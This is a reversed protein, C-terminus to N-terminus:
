QPYMSQFSCQYLPMKVVVISSCLSKSLMAVGLVQHADFGAGSATSPEMDYILSLHNTLPSLEM